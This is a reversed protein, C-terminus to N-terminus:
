VEVEFNVLFLLNLLWGTACTSDDHKGYLHLHRRDSDGGPAPTVTPTLRHSTGERVGCRNLWLTRGIWPTERIPWQNGNRDGRLSPKTVRLNWTLEAGWALGPAIMKFVWETIERLMEEGWAPYLGHIQYTHQGRTWGSGEHLCRAAKSWRPLSLWTGRCGILTRASQWPSLSRHQDTNSVGVWSQWDAKRGHDVLMTDSLCDEM